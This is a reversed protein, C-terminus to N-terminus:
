LFWALNCFTASVEKARLPLGRERIETRALSPSFTPDTRAVILEIVRRSQSETLRDLEVFYCPQEGDGECQILEPFISTIPVMGTPAFLGFFPSDERLRAFFPHRNRM